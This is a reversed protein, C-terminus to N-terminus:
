TFRIREIFHIHERILAQTNNLINTWVMKKMKLYLTDSHFGLQMENHIGMMLTMEDCCWGLFIELPLCFIQCPRFGFLISVRAFHDDTNWVYSTKWHKLLYIFLHQMFFFISKKRSKYIIIYLLAMIYLM